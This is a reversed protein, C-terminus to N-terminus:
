ACPIACQAQKYLLTTIKRVHEVTQNIQRNEIKPTFNGGKGM